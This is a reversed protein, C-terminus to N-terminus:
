ESTGGDKKTQVSSRTSIQGLKKIQIAIQHCAAGTAAQLNADSRESDYKGPTVGLLDSPLHLDGKNPQLFFVRNRGLKGIFLGFEFLVNDRVTNKTSNRIQALDDPSFVFVAFDSEDLANNLSEITTQSLNFM